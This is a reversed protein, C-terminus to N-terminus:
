TCYREETKLGKSHTEDLILSIRYWTCTGVFRLGFLNHRSSVDTLSLPFPLHLNVFIFMMMMMMMMMMM